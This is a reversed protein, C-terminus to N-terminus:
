IYSYRGIRKILYYLHHIKIMFIKPIEKKYPKLDDSIEDYNKNGITESNKLKENLDKILYIQSILVFNLKDFIIYRIKKGELKIKFKTEVVPTDNNTLKETNLVYKYNKLDQGFEDFM